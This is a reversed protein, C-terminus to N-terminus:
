VLGAGGAHGIQTVPMKSNRREENGAWALVHLGDHLGMLRGLVGQQTERDGRSPNNDYGRVEGGQWWIM